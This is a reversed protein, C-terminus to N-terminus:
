FGPEYGPEPGQSKEFVAQDFNADIEKQNLCESERKLKNYVLFKGIESTQYPDKETNEIARKVDSYEQFLWYKAQSRESKLNVLFIKKGNKELSLIGRDITSIKFEYLVNSHPRRTRMYDNTLFFRFGSISAVELEKESYEIKFEKRLFIPLSNHGKKDNSMADLCVGTETSRIGERKLNYDEADPFDNGVKKCGTFSLSCSLIFFFAFMKLKKILM